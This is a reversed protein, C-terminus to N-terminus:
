LAQSCLLISSFAGKEGAWGRAAIEGAQGSDALVAEEGLSAGQWPSRERKEGLRSTSLYLIGRSAARQLRAPPWQPYGPSARVRRRNRKRVSCKGFWM